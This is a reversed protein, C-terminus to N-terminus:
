DAEASPESGVVLAVIRDMQTQITADIQAKGYTVVCGGREITDDDVLHLQQVQEFRQVLKPSANELLARDEPHIHVTVAVPRLVTALADELQPLVAEANAQVLGKTLKQAFTLAFDFTADAAQEHVARIVTELQDIGAQWATALEGYAPAAEELAQRTGQKRGEELGQELGAARGEAAAKEKAEKALVEAEKQAQVLIRRAEQRAEEKLREAQQGLDGLDLVVAEKVSRDNATPKVLPM